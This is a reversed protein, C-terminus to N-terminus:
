LIKRTEKKIDKKLKDLDNLYKSVYPAINMHTKDVPIFELDDTSKDKNQTFKYIQM